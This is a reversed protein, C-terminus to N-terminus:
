VQKRYIDAIRRYQAALILPGAGSRTYLDLADFYRELAQAFEGRDAHVSAICVIVEAVTVEEGGLINVLAGEASLYRLIYV